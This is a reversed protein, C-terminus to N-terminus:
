DEWEEQQLDEEIEQDVDADDSGMDKLERELLRM